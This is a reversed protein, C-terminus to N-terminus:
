SETLTRVEHSGLYSEVLVKSALLERPEGAWAVSGQSLIYVINALRLAHVAYQEVLLITLGEEDHLRALTRAMEKVRIPALGLSLEDAMLIRPHGGVARALALMQQEGGSLTGALQASRQRLPQFYEFLKGIGERHDDLAVRLNDQVTLTPFIGRGEPILCVGKRSREHPSLMTIDESRLRVSGSRIECCGAIARLLTSKGAGNPGLVAVVSHEPVVLNVDTLAALSGYVATLNDISLLPSM